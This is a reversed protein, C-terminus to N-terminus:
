RNLTRKDMSARTPRSGWISSKWKCRDKAWDRSLGLLDMDAKVCEEWTKRGRGRGRIGVVEFSRCASVWEDEGKRELHGFWRLRGRRVVDAVCELDLRQYLEESSIRNRLTVGCMWRVMMRETRELRTLDEVKMAWTESGYILVSQVCARYIRGKVKLSAGRSTLIPSLERFKGWACRVRARSAEEVGGGAGIMDGLYCFKDVCELKEQPGLSIENVVDIQAPNGDVCKKCCFKAIDEKSISRVAIGSCKGHVWASCSTCQISNSGVGKNCVACPFKGSKDVQGTKVQCRMVKTKGLNVKLGKGEMGEKWTKLKEMLLEESEAVLVLDDAYLLEMPLGERFERSLAELVIIFLLPSLVSGQHVGV